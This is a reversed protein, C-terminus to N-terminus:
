SSSFRTHIGETLKIEQFVGIGINGQQLARIATDLGRARGLSINLLAIFIVRGSETENPVRNSRSWEGIEGQDQANTRKNQTVIDWYPRVM